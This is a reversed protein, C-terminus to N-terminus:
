KLLDLITNWPHTEIEYKQKGQTYDIVTVKVIRATPSRSEKVIEDESITREFRKQKSGLNMSISKGCTMPPAQTQTRRLM